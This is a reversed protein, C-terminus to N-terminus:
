TKKPWDKLLSPQGQDLCRLSHGVNESDGQPVSEINGMPVASSLDEKM